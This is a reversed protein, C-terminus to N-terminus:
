PTTWPRNGGSFASAKRVSKVTEEELRTQEEIALEVERAIEDADQSTWEAPNAKQPVSPRRLLRPRSLSPLFPTSSSPYSTRAPPNRYRGKAELTREGWRRPRVDELSPLPKTTGTKIEELSPLTQRKLFSRKRKRRPRRWNRFSTRVAQRYNGSSRETKKRSSTLRTKKDGAIYASGKYEALIAELTIDGAADLPM